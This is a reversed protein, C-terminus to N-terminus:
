EAAEPVVVGLYALLAEGRGALYARAKELREADCNQPRLGTRLKMQIARVRVSELTHRPFHQSLQRSTPADGKHLNRLRRVETTTWSPM